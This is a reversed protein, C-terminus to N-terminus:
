GKMWGNGIQVHIDMWLTVHTAIAVLTDEGNLNTSIRVTVPQMNSIPLTDLSSLANLHM